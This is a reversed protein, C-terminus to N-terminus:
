EDLEKLETELEADLEEPATEDDEVDKEEEDPLLEVKVSESKVPLSQTKILVTPKDSKIGTKKDNETGKFILTSNIVETMIDKPKNEIIREPKQSVNREYFIEENKQPYMFTPEPRREGSSLIMMRLSEIMQAQKNIQEQQSLILKHLENINYTVNRLKKQFYLSVGAIVVVGGIMMLNQKNAFFSSM